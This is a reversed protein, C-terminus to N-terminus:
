PTDAITYVIKEGHVKGDMMYKFGDEVSALGKPFIKTPLTKLRKEALLKSIV